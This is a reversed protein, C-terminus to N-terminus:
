RPELKDVVFAPAGVQQNQTRRVIPLFPDSVDQIGSRFSSESREGACRPARADAPGRSLWISSRRSWGPVALHRQRHQGM